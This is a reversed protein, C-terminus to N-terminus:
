NLVRKTGLADPRRTLRRHHGRGFPRPSGARKEHNAIGPVAFPADATPLQLAPDAALANRRRALAERPRLCFGLQPSQHTRDRRTRRALAHGDLLGACRQQGLQAGLAALRRGELRIFRNDANLEGGEKPLPREVLDGAVVDVREDGM